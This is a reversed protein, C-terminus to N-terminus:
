PAVSEHVRQEVYAKLLPNLLYWPNDNDHELIALHPLYRLDHEPALAHETRVRDLRQVHERNGFLLVLESRLEREAAQLHKCAVAADDRYDAHICGRQLLSNLQSMSGGSMEIARDLAEPRILQPIVRRHVMTRLREWGPEYRSTCQHKTWLKVHRLTHNSGAQHLEVASDDYQLDLPVTLLTAAPPALLLPLDVGFLRDRGSASPGARDLGDLILLVPREVVGELMRLAKAVLSQVSEPQRATLARLGKRMAENARLNTSILTGIIRISLSEVEVGPLAPKMQKIFRRAEPDSDLTALERYNDLRTIRMAGIAFLIDRANLDDYNLIEPLACWVVEFDQSVLDALRHLESSKGTGRHGSLKLMPWTTRQGKRQRNAWRQLALRKHQTAYIHDEGLYDDLPVHLAWEPRHPRLAFPEFANAAEQLTTAPYDSTM